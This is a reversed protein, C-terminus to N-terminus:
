KWGTMSHILIVRCMELYEEHHLVVGPQLSSAWVTLVEDNDQLLFSLVHYNWPQHLQESIDQLLWFREMEKSEVTLINTKWRRILKEHYCSPQRLKLVWTRLCNHGNAPFPQNRKIPRKKKGPFYIKKLSGEVSKGFLGMVLVPYKDMGEM